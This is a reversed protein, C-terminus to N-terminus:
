VGGLALFTQTAGIVASDSVRTVVVSVHVLNLQWGASSNENTVTTAVSYRAASADVQALSISFYRTESQAHASGLAHQREIADRALAAGVAVDDTTRTINFSFAWASMAGMLAVSLIVAAVLTELYTVGRLRRARNSRLRPALGVHGGGFRRRM